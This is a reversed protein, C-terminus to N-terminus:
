NVWYWIRWVSMMLVTHCVTPSNGILDLSHFPYAKKVSDSFNIAVVSADGYGHKNALNLQKLYFFAQHHYSLM